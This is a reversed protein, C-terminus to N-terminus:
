HPSLYIIVLLLVIFLLFFVTFMPCADCLRQCLCTKIHRLQVPQQLIVVFAQPLRPTSYTYIGNKLPHQPNTYLNCTHKPLSSARNPPQYTALHWTASCPPCPSTFFYHLPNYLSIPFPCIFPYILLCLVSNSHLVLVLSTTNLVTAPQLM